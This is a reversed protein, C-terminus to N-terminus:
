SLSNQTVNAAAFSHRQKFVIAVALRIKKKQPHQKRRIGVCGVVVPYANNSSHPRGFTGDPQGDL